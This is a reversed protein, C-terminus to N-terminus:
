DTNLIRFCKFINLIYIISNSFFGIPLIPSKNVYHGILDITKPGEDINFTITYIYFEFNNKDIRIFKVAIVCLKHEKPIFKICNTKSLDWLDLIQKLLWLNFSINIRFCEYM